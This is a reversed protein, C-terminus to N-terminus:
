RIPSWRCAQQSRTTCVLLFNRIALTSLTCHELFQTWNESVSEAAAAKAEPSANPDFQYATGGAKQTQEVLKEEVKEPNVKSQPDQALEAAAEVTGQQKMETKEAAASAM